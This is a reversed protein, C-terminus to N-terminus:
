SKLEVGEVPWSQSPQTRTVQYLVYSESSPKVTNAAHVVPLMTWSTPFCERNLPVTSNIMWVTRPSEEHLLHQMDKNSLGSGISCWIHQANGSIAGLHTTNEDLIAFLYHVTIWTCIEERSSYCIFLQLHWHDWFWAKTKCFNFVLGAGM